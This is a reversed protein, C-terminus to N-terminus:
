EEAIRIDTIIAEGAISGDREIHRLKVPLLRYEQAFWIELGEKGPPHL